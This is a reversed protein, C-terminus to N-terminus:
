GVPEDHDQTAARPQPAGLLGVLGSIYLQRYVFDNPDTVVLRTGLVAAAHYGTVLASIGVSDIFSVHGLDVRILTPQQGTFAADIAGRLEPANDLDIEGRPIIEVVGGPERRTTISFEV